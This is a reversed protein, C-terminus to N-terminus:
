ILEHISATQAASPTERNVSVFFSTVSNLSLMPLIFPTRSTYRLVLSDDRGLIFYDYDRDQLDLALMGLVREDAEEFWGIEEVLLPLWPTRSYGALSDFRLKSLPKM